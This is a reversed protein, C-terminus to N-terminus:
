RRPARWAIFQANFQAHAPRRYAVRTLPKDATRALTVSRRMFIRGGQQCTKRRGGNGVGEPACYAERSDGEYAAQPPPPPAPALDVSPPVPAAPNGGRDAGRAAGRWRAGHRRARGPAAGRGREWLCAIACASPGGSPGRTEHGAPAPPAQARARIADVAAVARGRRANSYSLGHQLGALFLPALIGANVSARVPIAGALSFRFFNSYRVKITANCSKGHSSNAM